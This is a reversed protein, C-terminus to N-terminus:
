NDGADGRWRGGAAFVDLISVSVRVGVIVRLLGDLHRQKIEVAVLQGHGEVRSWQPISAKSFVVKPM